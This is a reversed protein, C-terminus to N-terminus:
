RGSKSCAAGAPARPAPGPTLRRAVEDQVIREILAVPDLPALLPSSSLMAPQNHRLAQTTGDREDARGAEYARRGVSKAIEAEAIKNQDVFDVWRSAFGPFQRAFLFGREQARAIYHRVQHEFALREALRRENGPAGEVVYVGLRHHLIAGLAELDPAEVVEMVWELNDVLRRRAERFDATRLSLRVLPRGYITAARKGLRIQICYRGDPRRSLYSPRGHTGFVRVGLMTTIFDHATSLCLEQSPAFGERCPDSWGTAIPASPLAVLRRFGEISLITLRNPSHAPQLTLLRQAPRSFLLTSASRVVECPFSGSSPFPAILM